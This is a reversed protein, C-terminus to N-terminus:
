ARLNGISQYRHHSRPGSSRRRRSARLSSFELLLIPCGTSWQIRQRFPITPSYGTSHRHSGSDTNHCRSERKLAGNQFGAAFLTNNSNFCIGSGLFLDEGAVLWGDPSVSILMSCGRCRRSTWRIKFYLKRKNENRKQMIICDLSSPLIKKVSKAESKERVSGRQRDTAAHCWGPKVKQMAEEGKKVEGWEHEQSWCPRTGLIKSFM